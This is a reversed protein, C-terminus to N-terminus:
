TYCSLLLAVPTWYSSQCAIIVEGHNLVLICATYNGGYIPYKNYISEKGSGTRRVIGLKEGARIHLQLGNLVVPSNPRYRMKYDLFPIGGFQPWDESVQDM